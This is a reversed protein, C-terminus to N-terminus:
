ETAKSPSMKYIGSDIIANCLEWLVEALAIM